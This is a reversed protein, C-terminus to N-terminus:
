ILKITRIENNGWHGYTLLASFKKDDIKIGIVICRDHEIPTKM